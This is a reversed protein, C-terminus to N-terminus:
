CEMVEDPGAARQLEAENTRLWQLLDLAGEPSLRPTFVQISGDTDIVGRSRDQVANIRALSVLENPRGDDFSIEYWYPNDDMQKVVHGPVEVRVPQGARLNRM